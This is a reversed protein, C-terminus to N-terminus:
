LITNAFTKNDEGRNRVGYGDDKRNGVRKEKLNSFQRRSCVELRQKVFMSIRSQTTPQKWISRRDFMSHEHEIKPCHLEPL